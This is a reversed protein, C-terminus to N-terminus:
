SVKFYVKERPFIHINYVGEMEFYSPNQTFSTDKDLNMTSPHKMDM